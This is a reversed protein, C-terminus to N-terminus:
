VENAPNYKQNRVVRKFHDILCDKRENFFAETPIAHDNIKIQNNAFLQTAEDFIWGTLHEGPFAAITDDMPSNHKGVPLPMMNGLGNIFDTRDSLHYHFYRTENQRDVRCADMHDLDQKIANDNM